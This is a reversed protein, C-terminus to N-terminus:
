ILNRSPCSSFLDPMWRCINLGNEHPFEISLRELLSDARILPLFYSAFAQPLNLHTSWFGRSFSLTLDSIAMRAVIAFLIEISMEFERSEFCISIHPSKFVVERFCLPGQDNPNESNHLPFKTDHLYAEAWTQAEFRIM